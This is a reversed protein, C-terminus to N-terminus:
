EVKNNKVVYGKEYREDTEVFRDANHNLLIKIYLRSQEVKLFGKSILEKMTNESLLYLGDTVRQYKLAILCNGYCGEYWPYGREDTQKKDSINAICLKELSNNYYLVYDIGNLEPYTKSKIM